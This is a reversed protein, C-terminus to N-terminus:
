AEKNFFGQIQGIAAAAINFGAWGAAIVIPGVVVLIRWDM